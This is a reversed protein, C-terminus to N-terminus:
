RDPLGTARISTCMLIQDQSGFGVARSLRGAQDPGKDVTEPNWALM